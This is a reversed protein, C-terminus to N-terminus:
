SAHEVTLARCILRVLDDIDRDIGDHAADGCPAHALFLITATILSAGATRESLSLNKTEPIDALVEALQSIALAVHGHWIDMVQNGLAEPLQAAASQLMHALDHHETIGQLVSRILHPVFEALHAHQVRTESLIEEFHEYGHQALSIFLDQKDKYYNYITGKAMEAEAAIEDLTAEYYGKRLFVREAAKLIAERRAEREREKRKATPKDMDISM